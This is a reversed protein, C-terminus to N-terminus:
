VVLGGRPLVHLRNIISRVGPLARMATEVAVRTAESSVEGLLTLWGREVKVQVRTPPALAAWNLLDLAAQALEADGHRFHPLFEVKLADAIGRVGQVGCVAQEVLHKQAASSVRGVLRVVGDRVALAIESVDIFPQAALRDMVDIHLQRDSKLDGNM